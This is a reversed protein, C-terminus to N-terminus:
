NARQHLAGGVAKDLSPWLDVLRERVPESALRETAVEM